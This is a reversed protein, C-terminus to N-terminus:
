GHSSMLFDKSHSLLGLFYSKKPHLKSRNLNGDRANDDIHIREAKVGTYM